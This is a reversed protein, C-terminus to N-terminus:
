GSLLIAFPLEDLVHRLELPGDHRTGTLVNRWRAPAGRPLAVKADRWVYGVPFELPDVLRTAFRSAV